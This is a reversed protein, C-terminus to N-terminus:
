GLTKVLMGGTTVAWGAGASMGATPGPTWVRVSAPVPVPERTLEVRVMVTLAFLLVVTARTAEGVEEPAPAVPLPAEPAEPEPAEPEPAEALRVPALRGSM